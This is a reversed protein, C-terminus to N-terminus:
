KRFLKNYIFALVSGAEKIKLRIRFPLYDLFGAFLYSARGYIIGPLTKLKRMFHKEKYMRQYGSLEAYKGVVMDAAKVEKDPLQKEWVGIKSTTIPNTLSRHYKAVEDDPHHAFAKQQRKYFDFMEPNYTINLFKCVQQMQPVPEAVLDEYRLSFFQQPYQQKLRLMKRASYKWRYAILPTYPAEFDVKRISVLNDRYDRTLHIYRADPFARLIKETNTSYVPNKDGLLHIQEKPFASQFHLYIIKILSQFSCAGDCDQIAKKLAEKDVPWTQFNKHRYVDKLFHELRKRTWTKVHGYKPYLNAILPCETPINVHPHADLLSRLLYTGSRPRGIIFFFPINEADKM